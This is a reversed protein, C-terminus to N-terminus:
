GAGWRCASHVGAHKGEHHGEELPVCERLRVKWQPRVFSRPVATYCCVRSPWVVTSSVVICCWAEHVGGIM